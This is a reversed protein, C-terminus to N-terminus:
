SDLRPITFLTWFSDSHDLIDVFGPCVIKGQADIIKKSQIKEPLKEVSVIKGDLIAIDAESRKAGSGDIVTGNKIVLDFM